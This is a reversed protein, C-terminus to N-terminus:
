EAAEMAAHVIAKEEPHSDFWENLFWLLTQHSMGGISATTTNSYNYLAGELDGFAEQVLPHVTKYARDGPQAEEATKLYFAFAHAFVDGEPVKTKKVYGRDEPEVKVRKEERREWLQFVCDVVGVRQGTPTVFDSGVYFEDAQHFDLDLRNKLTFNRWSRPIVFGVWDSHKAAANFFPVALSNAVGFPPNGITILGDGLGAEAEFFDQRKVLYHNRELDFAKINSPKVGATMLSELFVGSGASPELWTRSLADEGVAEVMMAVARDAVARPTFYQEKDLELSRKARMTSLQNSAM